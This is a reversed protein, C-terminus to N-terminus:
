AQAEEALAVDDAVLPSHLKVPTSSKKQMKMNLLEVGLSFAMAFYVYGKPVHVELGEAILTVGILLLFSLALMKITPHRDVFRAISEAAFLMVGVSVIVASIMVTLGVWEKGPATKVMGVATIVSDLSFVIDLLVVQVLVQGFAASVKGSVAHHEEGELKTHIERTSKAILFLGGVLLILDRGSIGHADGDTGTWFAPIAFLDTTLGMIWGIALLLLIRMGMALGLGLKRAKPQDAVPLKAVLISIFVINDIGLVIELAALTLFAILAEGSMLTHLGGAGGVQTAALAAISALLTFLHSRGFFSTGPPSNTFRRQPPPTYRGVCEQPVPCGRAPDAVILVWCAALLGNRFHRQGDQGAQGFVILRM